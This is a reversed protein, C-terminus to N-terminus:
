DLAIRVFFKVHGGIFEVRSSAQALCEGFRPMLREFTEGVKKEDLSGLQGSMAPAQRRRPAAAKGPAEQKPAAPAPESGGCGSTGFAAVFTAAGIAAAPCAREM